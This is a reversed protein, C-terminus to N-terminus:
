SSFGFLVFTLCTVGLNLNYKKHKISYYITYAIAATLVLVFAMAGYGFSFGLTNVFFLDSKAAMLVTYQIIIYQVTIWILGAIGIAKMIDWTTPKASKKFYYVLVVAPIALLSLLHVGISLGIIFAILVLWRDDTQTEWKLICW